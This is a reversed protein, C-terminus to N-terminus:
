RARPARPIPRVLGCGLGLLRQNHAEGEARVLETSLTHRNADSISGMSVMSVLVRIRM